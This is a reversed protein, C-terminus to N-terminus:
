KQFWTLYPGNTTIHLNPTAQVSLLCWGTKYPIYYKVILYHQCLLDSLKKCFFNSLCWGSPHHGALSDWACRLSTPVRRRAQGRGACLWTGTSYMRESVCVTSRVEFRDGIWLPDSFTVTSRWTADKVERSGDGDFDPRVDSVDYRRETVTSPPSDKKVLKGLFTM